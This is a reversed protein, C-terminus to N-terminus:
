GSSSWVINKLLVLTVAPRILSNLEFTTCIIDHCVKSLTIDTEHKTDFFANNSLFIMLHDENYRFLKCFLGSVSCDGSETQKRESHFAQRAAIHLDDNYGNCFFSGCFRRCGYKDAPM